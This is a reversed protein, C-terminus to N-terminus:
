FKQSKLHTNEIVNRNNKLRKGFARLCALLILFGGFMRRLWPADIRGALFSAALAGLAGAFIIPLCARLHLRGAKAHIVLAAVAAPLFALVNVGQAAHQPLGLALTLVPILLTGGGMGMGAAVGACLGSLIYWLWNM